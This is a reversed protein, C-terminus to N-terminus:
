SQADKVSADNTSSRQEMDLACEEKRLLTQADMVAADSPRQEM